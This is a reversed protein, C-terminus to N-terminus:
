YILSSAIQKVAVAADGVASCLTPAVPNTADGIAFVAPSSTQRDHSVLIYGQDDLELQGGLFETNPTNGTRVLIANIPLISRRQTNGDHVEVAAVDSEGLIRTISHCTLVEVNSRSSVATQFDQRANLHRGRHVLLISSCAESLYLANLVASDGGGVICVRQGIISGRQGTGSRLVGRDLFDSEGPVNLRRRRVGTAIIIARARVRGGGRLVFEKRALHSSAIPSGTKLSCNTLDIQHLFRDRLNAGTTSVIGPYNTIPGYTELLQGGSEPRSDIITSRLRLDNCWVAAALGAPGAGIIAVDCAFHNSM